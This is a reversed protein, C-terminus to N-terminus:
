SLLIAFSPCALAFIEFAALQLGRRGARATRARPARARRRVRAVSAAKEPPLARVATENPRRGRVFLSRSRAAGSAPSRPTRFARVPAYRSQTQSSNDGRSGASRCPDARLSIPASGDLMRAQLSPLSTVAIASSA